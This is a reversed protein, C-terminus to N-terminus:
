FLTAAKVAVAGGFSTISTAVWSLVLTQGPAQSRFTIELSVEYINLSSGTTKYIFTADPVSGDSLHATFRSDVGNAALYVRLKRTVPEAPASFSMVAGTRTNYVGTTTQASATPTGNSWVYTVPYSTWNRDAPQALNTIRGGGDVKHNFSQVSSEGWHAWDLTGEATLDVTSGQTFSTITLIGPPPPAEPPADSPAAADPPSDQSVDVPGEAASDRAVVDMVPTGDSVSAADATADRGDVSADLAAAADSADSGDPGGGTDAASDRGDDMGRDGAAVDAVTVADNPGADGGADGHAGDRAGDPSQSAADVGADVVSECADGVGNGDADGQEPNSNRPCNDVPDPVSDGDGDAPLDATLTLTVARQRNPTVDAQELARLRITGGALGRIDIRVRHADVPLYAAVTGMKGPGTPVLTGTAPLREDLFLVGREGYISIRLEEPAAETPATEISLFLSTPVAPAGCGTALSGALALAGIWFIARVETRERSSGARM